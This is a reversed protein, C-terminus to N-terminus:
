NGLAKLGQEVALRQPDDEPLNDTLKKASHLAALADEDRGLVSYARALQLWGKLNGPEDKLRAALNGVMNRIFDQREEESLDSAAAIDGSTPGRPADPFDPLAVLDLNFGAGMRNAERLFVAMWPVEAQEQAIRALLMTRADLTQGAQDLAVARYYTGAPNNPDLELAKSIAEEALKTVVGNEASILVEAYQSWTASTADERNVIQSYAYAADGFRGMNSYTTALLDWGRTEGGDAESELKSRLQATLKTLNQAEKQEAERDKFPVSAVGPAGLQMYLAAGALPTALAFAILLGRGASGDKFAASRTRDAAIMRRKIEVRANAAEAESILGREMDRDVEGLQDRFIAIAGDARDLAGDSHRLLPWLFALTTVGAFVAAFAWFIM